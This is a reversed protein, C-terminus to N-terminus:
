GEQALPLDLADTEAEAAREAAWGPSKACFIEQIVVTVVLGILISGTVEASFDFPNVVFFM